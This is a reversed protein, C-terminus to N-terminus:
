ICPFSYKRRGCEEERIYQPLTVPCLVWLSFGAFNHALILEAPKLNNIKPTSHCFTTTVPVVSAGGGRSHPPSLSHPLPFLQSSFNTRFLPLHILSYHLPSYSIVNHTHKFFDFLFVSFFAFMDMPREVVLGRPFFKRLKEVTM